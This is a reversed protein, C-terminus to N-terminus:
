KLLDKSEAELLRLDLLGSKANVSLTAKGNVTSALPTSLTLYGCVRLNEDNSAVLLAQYCLFLFIFTQQIEFSLNCMQIKKKSLFWFLEPVIISFSLNQDWPRGNCHNYNNKTLDPRKNETINLFSALYPYM